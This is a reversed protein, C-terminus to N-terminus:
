IASFSGSTMHSRIGPGGRKERSIDFISPPDPFACACTCSVQVRIHVTPDSYHPALSLIAGGVVHMCAPISLFTPIEMGVSLIFMNLTMRVKQVHVHLLIYGLKIHMVHALAHIYVPTTCNVVHMFFFLCQVYDPDHARGPIQLADLSIVCVLKPM